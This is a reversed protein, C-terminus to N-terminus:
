FWQVKMENWSNLESTEANKANAMATTAETQREWLWQITKSQHNVNNTIADEQKFNNYHFNYIRTTLRRHSMGAM